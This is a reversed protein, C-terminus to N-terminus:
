DGDGASLRNGDRRVLGRRRALWLASTFRGPGWFRAEVAARLERRTMPGKEELAAVLEGVEREIDTDEWTPTSLTAPAWGYRGGRPKADPDIRRRPSRPSM